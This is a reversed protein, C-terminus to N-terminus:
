HPQAIKSDVIWLPGDACTIRGGPGPTLRTRHVTHWAGDLVVFPGPLPMGFRFARVQNHVTAAPQTRDLFAFQPEMDPAYCALSEDQPHGPDNDRVKGLAEVLADEFPALLAPWLSASTVDEALSIGARQALIPGADFREDMRHVTIGMESDGNRIGWPVAM